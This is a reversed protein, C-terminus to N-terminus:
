KMRVNELSFTFSGSSTEWVEDEFLLLLFRTYAWKENVAQALREELNELIGSLKLRILKPKLLEIEDM